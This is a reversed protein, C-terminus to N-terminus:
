REVGRDDVASASNYWRSLESEPQLRLWGWTLEVALARVWRNGAKSIGRSESRRVVETRLPACVRQRTSSPLHSVPQFRRALTTLPLSKDAPEM